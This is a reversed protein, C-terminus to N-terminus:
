SDLVAQICSGYNFSLTRNNSLHLEDPENSVDMAPNWWVGPGGPCEDDPIESVYLVEVPEHTEIDFAYVFSTHPVYEYANYHELLQAWAERIGFPIVIPTVETYTDFEDVMRRVYAVAGGTSPIRQPGSDRWKTGQNFPNDQLWDYARQDQWSLRPVDPLAQRMIDAASLPKAM